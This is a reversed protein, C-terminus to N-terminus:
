ITRILRVQRYPSKPNYFCCRRRHETTWQEMHEEAYPLCRDPLGSVYVLVFLVARFKSWLQIGREFEERSTMHQMATTWVPSLDLNDADGKFKSMMTVFEHALLKGDYLSVDETINCAEATRLMLNGDDASLETGGIRMQSNAGFRQSCFGM